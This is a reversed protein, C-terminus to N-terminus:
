PCTTAAMTDALKIALEIGSMQAGATFVMFLAYTGLDACDIAVSFAGATGALRTAGPDPPEPKIGSAIMAARAARSCLAVGGCTTPTPMAGIDYYLEPPGGVVISGDTNVAGTDADCPLTLKALEALVAERWGRADAGAAQSTVMVEFWFDNASMSPMLAVIMRSDANVGLAYFAPDQTVVYPAATFGARRMAEAATYTANVPDCASRRLGAIYM